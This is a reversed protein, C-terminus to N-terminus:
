KVLEFRAGAMVWRGPMPAGLLDSYSRDLLNDAQVFATLRNRLLAYSLRANMLYYDKTLDAQIAPAAQTKRQKYLGNLSIAAPGCHYQLSYNVLFRAHSSVYLSPVGDSSESDLWILGANLIIRQTASIAHVYQADTELGTTNVSAINRALAYVGTPSLNDKRPMDSYPTTVYDILKKHFRQFFTASIKLRNEWFWDAGAEYSWSREAALAPNGIRGSTVLPKNYNNFRETFDADRITKGGSARWQWSSRKVSVTLQPILEANLHQVFEARLSPQLMLYPGIKQVLSLFPAALFLSHDGRDNSRIMKQQYNFGGTLTTNQQWDYRYLLLSQFLKSVNNNAVSVRNYLYEDDLTKYGADVSFHTKGKQYAARLQHWWSSVKETATDSLFSTYFNQAGFHRRDYAARYSMQWHLGPKWSFSLSATSNHLFGRTGRQQVGNANNALAGGSISIDRRSYIGGANINTFGYEGAAAQASLRTQEQVRAASFNKTIIHIVGGVADAGYIASSAGKLIEIRDIEAPSVPIYSSFHGTNPDNLRLGDLIVLVQQFTGGRLVIDSQAGMPGRAQIEIGPTYRLLDDLSHVPLRSFYEGNIITINRGTESARKETLSSTITVGDLEVEQSHSGASLLVASVLLVM